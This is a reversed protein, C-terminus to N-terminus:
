LLRFSIQFVLHFIHTFIISPPPPSPLIPPSFPSLFRQICIYKVKYLRNGYQPGRAGRHKKFKKKRLKHVNNKWVAVSNNTCISLLSDASLQKIYLLTLYKRAGEPATFLQRHVLPATIRSLKPVAARYWVVYAYVYMCIYVCVCMCIYTCTYEMSGYTPWLSFLIQYLHCIYLYVCNNRHLVCFM